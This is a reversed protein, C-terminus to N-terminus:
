VTHTWHGILYKKLTTVQSKVCGATMLLVIEQTFDGMFCRTSTSIRCGAPLTLPLPCDAHPFFCDSINSNMHQLM